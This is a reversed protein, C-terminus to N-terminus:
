EKRQKRYTTHHNGVLIDLAEKKRLVMGRVMLVDLISDDLENARQVIDELYKIENRHIGIAMASSLKDLRATQEDLLEEGREIQRELHATLNAAEVSFGVQSGLRVARTATFLSQGDGGDAPLPSGDKLHACAKRYLDLTSATKVVAERAEGFRRKIQTILKECPETGLDETARIVSATLASVGLTRTARPISPKPLADFKFDIASLETKLGDISQRLDTIDM